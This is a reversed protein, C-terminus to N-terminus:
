TSKLTQIELLKIPLQMLDSQNEFTMDNITGNRSVYVILNSSANKLRSIQIVDPILIHSKDRENNRCLIILSNYHAYIGKAIPRIEENKVKSENRQYARNMEDDINFIKESVIPKFSDYKFVFNMQEDDLDSSSTFIIEKYNFQTPKM